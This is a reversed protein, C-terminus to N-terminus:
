KKKILRQRLKKKLKNKRGKLFSKLNNNLEIILHCTEKFQKNSITLDVKEKNIKKAKAVKKIQTKTLFLIFRKKIKLNNYDLTFYIKSLFSEM